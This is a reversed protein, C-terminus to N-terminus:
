HAVTFRERVHEGNEAEDILAIAYDATSIRSNGEPDTLLQDGGVRYGGTREGPELLAAPSVYTWDVDTDAARYLELAEAHALAIPKWAEPFEPTDVLRVGPAVELGGAGGVVILRPVGARSLGDLLPRAADLVITAGSSEGPGVASIAVDHGAAASAVSAADLVDAERHTVATVEHGRRKAEDVVLPGVHGGAGFVVIKM